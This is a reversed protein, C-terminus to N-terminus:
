GWPAWKEERQKAYEDRHRYLDVLCYIFYGVMVPLYIVSAWWMREGVPYVNLGYIFWIAPVLLYAMLWYVDKAPRLERESPAVRSTADSSGELRGLLWWVVAFVVVGALVVVTQRQLGSVVGVLYFVLGVVLGELGMFAAFWFLPRPKADTM